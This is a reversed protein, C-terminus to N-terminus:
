NAPATEIAAPGIGCMGPGAAPTRESPDKPSRRLFETLEQKEIQRKVILLEALRDLCPRRDALITSAVVSARSLAEEVAVAVDPPLGGLEDVMLRNMLGWRAHM